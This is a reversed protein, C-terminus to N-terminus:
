IAKRDTNKHRNLCRFAKWLFDHKRNMKMNTNRRPKEVWGLGEKGQCINVQFGPTRHLCPGHDPFAINPSSASHVANHLPMPAPAAPHPMPAPATPHLVPTPTYWLSCRSTAGTCLPQSSDSMFALSPKGLSCDKGHFALYLGSLGRSQFIMFGSDRKMTLVQKWLYLHVPSM